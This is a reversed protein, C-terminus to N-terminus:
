PWRKSQSGIDAWETILSANHNVLAPRGLDELAIALGSCLGPIYNSFLDVHFHSTDSLDAACSGGEQELITELSYGPQVKRLLDLARGGPHIWYRRMVQQLYDTGFQAEFEELSHSREPALTQMDAIFGEVWPFLHIGAKRAASLVGEVRSFPIHESHFPSISVLLTTLGHAKLLRLTELASSMDRYWSANTEVYDIRISSDAAADLVKVLADTRLM